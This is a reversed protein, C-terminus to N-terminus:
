LVAIKNCQLLYKEDIGHGHSSPSIRQCLSWKDEEHHYGFLGMMEAISTEALIVKQVYCNLAVTLHQQCQSSCYTITTVMTETFVAKTNIFVKLLVRDFNSYTYFVFCEMLPSNKNNALEPPFHTESYGSYCHGFFCHTHKHTGEDPNGAPLTLCQRSYM